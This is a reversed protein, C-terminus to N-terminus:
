AAPPRNSPTVSVNPAPKYSHHTRNPHPATHPPTPPPRHQPEPPHPPPTAAYKKTLPAANPPSNLKQNPNLPEPSSNLSPTTLKTSIPDTLSRNFSLILHNLPQFPQQLTRRLIFLCSLNSCPPVLSTLFLFLVPAPLQPRLVQSVLVLWSSSQFTFYLKSSAMVQSVSEVVLSSLFFVLQLSMTDSKFDM